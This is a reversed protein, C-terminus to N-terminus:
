VGRLHELDTSRWGSEVCAKCAPEEAWRGEAHMQRFETYRPSEWIETITNDHVNGMPIRMGFWSCCPLVEGSNRVVARQGPQSCRFGEPAEEPAGLAAPAIGGADDRCRLEVEAVAGADDEFPNFFPQLNVFDAVGTWRRVLPEVEAQNKSLVVICVTVVPLNTGRERRLELFRNVNAIVVDFDGGVRIAAYTEPTDADLSISLRTLGADLLAVSREETLLMANTNFGVDVVGLSRAHAVLDPLWRTLLPENTGNLVLSCFGHAAVEEILAFAKDRGLKLNPDGWKALEDRPLSLVCMPCRLNCRFTTEIDLELPFPATEEFRDAAHWRRWHESLCSAAEPGLEEAIIGDGEM